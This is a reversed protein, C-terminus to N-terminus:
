KKWPLVGNYRKLMEANGREFFDAQVSYQSNGVTYNVTYNYTTDYKPALQRLVRSIVRDIEPQGPERFKRFWVPSITVALNRPLFYCNVDIFLDEPHLISAWKGLSECNDQALFEQNKNVINRLSYSWQNGANIVDICSQVHDPDLTNDDDLFMIFNGDAIYSGSGYIRHGNWRDCGISYPLDIVDFRYGEKTNIMVESEEIRAYADASREPGDVMVLHQINPYSQAKVSSLCSSLIPNGTTATVVTVLPTNM